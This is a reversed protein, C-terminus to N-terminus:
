DSDSSLLVKLRHNEREALFCTEVTCSRRKKFRIFKELQRLSNVKIIKVCCKKKDLRFSSRNYHTFKIQYFFIALPMQKSVEPM